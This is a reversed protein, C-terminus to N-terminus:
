SELGSGLLLGWCCQVRASARTSMAVNALALTVLNYTDCFNPPVLLASFRLACLLTSFGRREEIRQTAIMAGIAALSESVARAAGGGPGDANQKGEQCRSDLRRRVSTVALLWGAMLLLAASPEPVPTFEVALM